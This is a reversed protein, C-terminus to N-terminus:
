NNLVWLYKIAWPFSLVHLNDTNVMGNRFLTKRQTFVEYVHNSTLESIFHMTKEGLQQRAKQKCAETTGTVHLEGRSYYNQSNAM